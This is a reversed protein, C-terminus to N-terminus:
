KVLQRFVANALCASRFPNDILDMNQFEIVNIINNIKQQIISRFYPDNEPQYFVLFDAFSKSVKAIFVKLSDLKWGSKGNEETCFDTWTTFENEQRLKDMLSGHRCVGEINDVVEDRIKGKRWELEVISYQLIIDLDRLGNEISFETNEEFRNEFEVRGGFVKQSLYEVLSNYEDRAVTFVTKFHDTLDEKVDFAVKQEENEMKKGRSQTLKVVTKWFNSYNLYNQCFNM